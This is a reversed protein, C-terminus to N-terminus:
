LIAKEKREFQGFTLLLPHVGFFNEERLSFGLSGHMLFSRFPSLFLGVVVLITLPPPEFLKLWSASLCFSSGSSGRGVPM